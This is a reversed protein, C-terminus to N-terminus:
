IRCQIKYRNSFYTGLLADEVKNPIGNYIVIEAIRVPSYQLTATTLWAGVSFTNISITNNNMPANFNPTNTNLLVTSTTGSFFQRYLYKTNGSFVLNAVTQGVVPDQRLVSFNGVTNVGFWHYNSTNATNGAVMLASNVGAPVSTYEFVIYATQPTDNGGYIDNGMTGLTFLNDNSGDFVISPQGNFGTSEYYPQSYANTQTLHYGSDSLDTYQSVSRVNLGWKNALYNRVQGQETSTLVRNYM